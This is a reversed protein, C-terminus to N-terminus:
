TSSSPRRVSPWPRTTLKLFVIMMMVLLMPLWNMAAALAAVVGSSVWRWTM